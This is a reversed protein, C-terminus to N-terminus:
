PQVALRWGPGREPDIPTRLCDDAWSWLDSRPRERVSMDLTQPDPDAVWRHRGFPLVSREIRRGFLGKALNRRFQRLGDLNVGNDYVWVAQIIPGRGLARLGLFSGQDMYALTNDVGM